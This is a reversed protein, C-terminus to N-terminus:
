YRLYLPDGATVEVRWDLLGLVRELVPDGLEILRDGSQVVSSFGQKCESGKMKSITALACLTNAVDKANFDAATEETRRVLAHLLTINSYKTKAMIHLTDSLGKPEFEQMNRLACGELTQLAKEVTEDLKKMAVLNRPLLLVKRLATAVNTANFDTANSAVIDCLVNADTSALIQRNLEINLGSTRRTVLHEPLLSQRVVYNRDGDRDNERGRDIETSRQIDRERGTQRDVVPPAYAQVGERHHAERGRGHDCDRRQQGVRGAGNMADPPAVSRGDGVDEHVRMRRLSQSGEEQGMEENEREREREGERSWQRDWSRSRSRRGDPGSGGDDRAAGSRGDDRGGSWYGGGNNGLGRERSRHAKVERWARERDM